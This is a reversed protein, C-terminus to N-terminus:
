SGIHALHGAHPLAQMQTALYLSKEQLVFYIALDSQNILHKQCRVIHSAARTKM